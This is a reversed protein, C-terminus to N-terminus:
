GSMRVVLKIVLLIIYTNSTSVGTPKNGKVLFPLPTIVTITDRGGFAHICTFFADLTNILVMYM